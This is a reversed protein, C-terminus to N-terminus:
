RENIVKAAYDPVYNKRIGASSLTCSMLFVFAVYYLSKPCSLAILSNINECWSHQGKCWGNCHSKQLSLCPCWMFTKADITVSAERTQEVANWALVVSLILSRMTPRKHPSQWSMMMHQEVQTAIYFRPTYESSIFVIFMKFVWLLVKEVSSCWSYKVGM